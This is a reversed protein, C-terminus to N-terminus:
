VKEEKHKISDYFIKMLQIYLASTKKKWEECIAAGDKRDAVPLKVDVICNTGERVFCRVYVNGNSDEFCDADVSMSRELADRNEDIYAEYRAGLGGSFMYKMQALREKGKKTISFLVCGSSDLERAICEKAILDERCEQITFYNVLGPGLLVASLANDTMRIGLKDLVFLILIKNATYQESNEFM